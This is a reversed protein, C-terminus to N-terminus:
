LRDAMDVLVGTAQYVLRTLEGTEYADGILHVEKIKDALEGFSTDCTEYNGAFIVTDVLLKITRKRHQATLEGYVNVKLDHVGVHVPCNMERLAAVIQQRREPHTDSAVRSRAELLSVQKGRKALYYALEAGMLGGGLLVVKDGMTPESALVTLPDIAHVNAVGEIEPEQFKGVRTVFVAAPHQDLIDRPKVQRRLHVKVGLTRLERSLYDIIRYNETQGPVRSRIALLNGLIGGSEFVEVSYGLEAAMMAAWLGALGAGVVVVHHGAGRRALWFLHERGVMPNAPCTMVLDPPQTLCVNCHICPRIESPRDEFLKLPLRPDAIIPRGLAVMDVQGDAVLKEARTVDFINGGGIVPVDASGKVVPELPHTVEGPLVVPVRDTRPLMEVGVAINIASAGADASLSAVERLEEVPLHCHGKRGPSLRVSIALERAAKRVGAIIDTLVRARATIEGGYKDTRRNSDASLFQHLLFGGAALIEVGDYGADKARVAASVFAKVIERIQRATLEVPTEGFDPDAEASPAVPTTGTLRSSTKRGAHMLQVCVTVGEAHLVECLRTHMQVFKDDDLLLTNTIFRGAPAVAAPETIILGVGGRARELYYSIGRETLFGEPSGYGTAMAPFVIRNRVTMGGVEIPAALAEFGGKQESKQRKAEGKKV